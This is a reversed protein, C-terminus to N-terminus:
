FGISNGSSDLHWYYKASNYSLNEETLTGNASFTYRYTGASGYIFEYVGPAKLSNTPIQGGVSPIGYVPQYTFNGWPGAEYVLYPKETSWTFSINPNYNQNSEDWPDVYNSNLALNYQDTIESLTIPNVSEAQVLEIDFPTWSSAMWAPTEGMVTDLGTLFYQVVSSNQASLDRALIVYDGSINVGQTLPATIRLTDGVQANRLNTSTVIWSDGKEISGFGTIAYPPEPATATAFNLWQSDVCIYLNYDSPNFWFASEVPAPETESVITSSSSAGSSSLFRAM